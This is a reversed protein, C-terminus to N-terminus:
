IRSRRRMYEQNLKLRVSCAAGERDMYELGDEGVGDVNHLLGTGAVAWDKIPELGVNLSKMTDSVIQQLKRM